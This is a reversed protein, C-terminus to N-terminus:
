EANPPYVTRRCRKGNFTITETEMDLRIVPRRAGEGPMGIGKRKRRPNISDIVIVHRNTDSLLHFVGYSVDDFDDGPCKYPTLEMEGVWDADRDSLKTASTVTAMGLLTYAAVAAVFINRMEYEGITV